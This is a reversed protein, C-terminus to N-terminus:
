KGESPTSTQVDGLVSNRVMGWSLNQGTRGFFMGLCYDEGAVAQQKRVIIREFIEGRRPLSLHWAINRLSKKCLSESYHQSCAAGPLHAWGAKAVLSPDEEVLISRPFRFILEFNVAQPSTWEELEIAVTAGVQQALGQMTDMGIGPGSFQNVKRATSLEQNFILNALGQV